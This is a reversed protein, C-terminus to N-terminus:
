VELRLQVQQEQQALSEETQTELLPAAQAREDSAALQKAETLTKGTAYNNGEDYAQQDAFVMFM